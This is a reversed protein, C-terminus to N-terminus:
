NKEISFTDFVIMFHSVLGLIKMGSNYALRGMYTSILAHLTGSLSLDNMDKTGWFGTYYRRTSYLRALLSNGPFQHSKEVDLTFM